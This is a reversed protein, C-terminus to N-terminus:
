RIILIKERAAIKNNDIFPPRTPSSIAPWSAPPWDIDGYAVMSQYDARVADEAFARPSTKGKKGANQLPVGTEISRWQVVSRRFLAASVDLNLSFTFISAVRRDTNNKAIFRFHLSNRKSHKLKWQAQVLFRVPSSDFAAQVHVQDIRHQNAELALEPLEATFLLLDPFFIFSPSPLLWFIVPPTSASSFPTYSEWHRTGGQSGEEM